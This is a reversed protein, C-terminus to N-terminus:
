RSPPALNGCAIITGMNNRSAHVNVFYQGASPVQIPLEATSAAQGNGGVELPEYADAPGLIGRDNGCQGVHIHWPHVGGPVANEITVSALTKLTDDEVGAMWGTGKVQVAGTLQSPTALVANWRSGVRERNPDIEVRRGGGGCAGVALMTVLLAAAGSQTM